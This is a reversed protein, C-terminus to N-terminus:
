PCDSLTQKISDADMGASASGTAASSSFTGPSTIAATAPTALCRDADGLHGRCRPPGRETAVTQLFIEQPDSSVRHRFAEPLRRAPATQDTQGKAYDTRDGSKVHWGVFADVPGPGFVRLDGTKHEEAVKAKLKGRSYGKRNPSRMYTQDFSIDLTSSIRRISRPQMRYTM